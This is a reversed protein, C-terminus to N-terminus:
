GGRNNQPCGTGCIWDGDSRVCYPGHVPAARPKASAEPPAAKKVSARIVVIASWLIERSFESRCERHMVELRRVCEEREKAAGRAEAEDLLAALAAYTRAAVTDPYHELLYARARELNTM